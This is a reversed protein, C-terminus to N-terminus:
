LLCFILLFNKKHFYLVRMIDGPRGFIVYRESEEGYFGNEDASDSLYPESLEFIERRSKSEELGKPRIGVWIKDGELIQTWTNYGDADHHVFTHYLAQHFLLWSSSKQIDLPISIRNM